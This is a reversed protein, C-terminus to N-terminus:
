AAKELLRRADESRVGKRRLREYEPRLEEPCDPWVQPRGLVPAPAEEPEEFGMRRRVAAIEAAEQELVMQKAEDAPIRKTRTLDRYLDLLHPPCWPLRTLATARGARERVEPARAALNGQEWVRERHWREKRAKAAAPSKAAKRANERYKELTAPDGHIARKIGRRQKERFGPKKWVARGICKRCYGSTNRQSLEAPCDKCTAM